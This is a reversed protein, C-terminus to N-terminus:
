QNKISWGKCNSKDKQNQDTHQREKKSKRIRIVGKTNEFEEITKGRVTVLVIYWIQYLGFIPEYLELLLIFM